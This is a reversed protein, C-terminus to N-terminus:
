VRGFDFLNCVVIEFKFSIASLKGFTYFVSHSFSFNSTVLSKEKERRTKLLSTNSVNLFWPKNPFPSCKTIMHPLLLPSLYITKFFHTTFIILASPLSTLAFTLIMLTLCFINYLLPQNTPQKKKKLTPQNM